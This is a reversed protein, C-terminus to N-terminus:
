QVTTLGRPLSATECGESTTNVKNQRLTDESDETAWPQVEGSALVAYIIAGALYVEAAIIFM